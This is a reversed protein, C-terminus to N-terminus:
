WDDQNLRECGEEIAQKMTALDDTDLIGAFRLLAKGPVGRILAKVLSRAFELVQHQQEPPLQNLQERIEAEITQTMMAM